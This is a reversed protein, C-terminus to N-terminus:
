KLLGALEKFYVRLMAARPRSVIGTSSFHHFEAKIAQLLLGTTVKGGQKALDYVKRQVNGDEPFLLRASFLVKDDLKLTGEKSTLSLYGLAFRVDSTAEWAEKELALLDGGEVLSLAGNWLDANNTSRAVSLVRDAVKKRSEGLAKSEVAHDILIAALASDSPINVDANMLFRYKALADQVIKGEGSKAPGCAAACEIADLRRPDAFQLARVAILDHELFEQNARINWWDGPYSADLAILAVAADADGKEIAKLYDARKRLPISERHIECVMSEFSELSGKQTAEASKWAQVADRDRGLRVLCDAALGWAIAYEPVAASYKSYAEVAGAYEGARHQELAWELQADHQDPLKEFASKHLLYSVKPDNAWIVNGLILAQVPTRTAEPFTELLGANGEDLKGENALKQARELAPKLKEYAATMETKIDQSRALLMALLLPLSKTM